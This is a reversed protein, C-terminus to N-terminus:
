KNLIDFQSIIELWKDITDLDREIEGFFGKCFALSVDNKLKSIEDNNDYNDRIDEIYSPEISNNVKTYIYSLFMNNTIFALIIQPPKLDLLDIIHRVCLEWNLSCSNPIGLDLMLMFLLRHDDKINVLLSIFLDKRDHEALSWLLEYIKIQDTYLRDTDFNQTLFKWKEMTFLKSRICDFLLEETVQYQCNQVFDFFLNDPLKLLIKIDTPIDAGCNILVNIIEQDSFNNISIDLAKNLTDKDVIENDLFLKMAFINSNEVCSLFSEKKTTIM